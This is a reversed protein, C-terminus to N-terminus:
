HVGQNHTPTVRRCVSTSDFTNRVVVSFLLKFAAMAFDYPRFAGTVVGVFPPKVRWRRLRRRRRTGTVVGFFPPKIAGFRAPECFRPRFIVEAYLPELKKETHGIMFPNSCGGWCVTAQISTTEPPKGHWNWYGGLCMTAQGDILNGGSRQFNWYGGWCFTAQGGPVM